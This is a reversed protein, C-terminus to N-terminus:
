YGVVIFSCTAWRETYATSDIDKHMLHGMYTYALRVTTGGGSIKQATLLPSSGCVANFLALSVNSNHIQGKVMDYNYSNTDGQTNKQASSKFVASASIVIPSWNHIWTPLSVPVNLIFTNLECYRSSGHYRTGKIVNNTYTGFVRTFRENTDMITEGNKNFLQLGYAM